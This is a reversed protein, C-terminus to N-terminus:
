NDTEAQHSLSLSDVSVTKDREQRVRQVSLHDLGTHQAGEEGRTPVRAAHGNRLRAHVQGLRHGDERQFEHRTHPAPEDALGKVRRALANRM